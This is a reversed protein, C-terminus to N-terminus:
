AARPQKCCPCSTEDSLLYVRCRECPMGLLMRRPGVKSSPAPKGVIVSKPAAGNSPGQQAAAMGEGFGQRYRAERGQQYGAEFGAQYMGAFEGPMASHGDAQSIASSLPLAIDIKENTKMPERSCTAARPLNTSGTARQGASM